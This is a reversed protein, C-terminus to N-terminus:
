NPDTPRKDLSSYYNVVASTGFRIKLDRNNELSFPENPILRQDNVFTGYSSGLDTLTYLRKGPDYNFEAHQRSVDDKDFNLHGNNQRGIKYKLRFSVRKKPEYSLSYDITLYVQPAQYHTDNPRVVETSQRPFREPLVPLPGTTGASPSPARDFPGTDGSRRASSGRNDHSSPYTSRHNQEGFTPENSRVATPPRRGKDALHREGRLDTGKRIRWQSVLLAVLMAGSFMLLALAIPHRVVSIVVSVITRGPPSYVFDNAVLAYGLPDNNVGLPLIEIIYGHNRELNETPIDVISQFGNITIPKGLRTNTDKSFISVELASILDTNEGALELSVERTGKDHNVSRIIISPQPPNPAYGNIFKYLTPNSVLVADNADYPTVKLSYAKGPELAATSISFESFSTIPDITGPVTAKTTDDIFSVEVYQVQESGIVNLWVHLENEQIELNRVSIQVPVAQESETRYGFQYIVPADLLAVDQSDYGQIEIRYKGNPLLDAGPITITSPVDSFPYTAQTIRTQEDIVKVELENILGQSVLELNFADTEVNYTLDDVWVAFPPIYGGSTIPIYTPNALVNGDLMPTLTVVHDGQSPYLNVQVYWQSLVASMIQSFLQSLNSQQGLAHSGGTGSAMDQLVDAAVGRGGSNQLGITYIPVPATSDQAFNIVQDKSHTSCPIGDPTEDVGDTFVIVARHGTTQQKVLEVARYTADYLCTGSGDRAGIQNIYNVTQNRDASFSQVVNVESNFQILAFQTTDPSQQVAAAAAQRMAASPDGTMSGSTDLVLVVYYPIAFQQVEVPSALDQGDLAVKVERVTNQKSSIIRNQSDTLSFYVELQLNNGMDTTRYDHVFVNPRAPNQTYAISATNFGFWGFCIGVVIGGVIWWKRYTFLQDLM